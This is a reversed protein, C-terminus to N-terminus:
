SGRPPFCSTRPDFLTPISQAPSHVNLEVQSQQPPFCATTSRSPEQSPPYTLLSHSGQILWMWTEGVVCLLSMSRTTSYLQWREVLLHAAARVFYFQLIELTKGWKKMQAQFMCGSALLMEALSWKLEWSLCINKCKLFSHISTIIIYM